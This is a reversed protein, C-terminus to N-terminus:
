YAYIISISGKLGGKSNLSNNKYHPDICQIDEGPEFCLGSTHYEEVFLKIALYAYSNGDYEDFILIDIENDENTIIDGIYM